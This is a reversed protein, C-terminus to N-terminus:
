APSGLRQSFVSVLNKGPWFLAVYENSGVVTAVTMRVEGLTEVYRYAM